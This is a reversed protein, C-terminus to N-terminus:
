VPYCPRPINSCAPPLHGPRKLSLARVCGGFQQRACAQAAHACLRLQGAQRGARGRPPRRVHVAPLLGRGARRARRWARPLVGAGGGRRASDGQARLNSILPGGQAHLSPILPGGGHWTSNGQAHLHEKLVNCRAESAPVYQVSGLMDHVRASCLVADALPDANLLGRGANSHVEKCGKVGLTRYLILLRGASTNPACLCAADRNLPPRSASCGAARVGRAPACRLMRCRAALAEQQPDRWFLGVGGVASRQEASAYYSLPQLREFKYVQAFVLRTMM